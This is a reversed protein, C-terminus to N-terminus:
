RVVLQFGAKKVWLPIAGPVQTFHWLLLMAFPFGGVCRGVVIDQSLQWRVTAQVEAEKLCM